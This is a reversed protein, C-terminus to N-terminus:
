RCKHLYRCKELNVNFVHASMQVMQCLTWKFYLFPQFSQEKVPLDNCVLLSQWIKNEGRARQHFILNQASKQVFFAQHFSQKKLLDSYQASLIVNELSEKTLPKWLCGPEPCRWVCISRTHEKLGHQTNYVKNCRARQCAFKKQENKNDLRNM